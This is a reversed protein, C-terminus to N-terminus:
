HGGAGPMPHGKPDHYISEDPPGAVDIFGVAGKNIARSISHDVLLYRGPVDVTFEVWTAGGAPILTTQVNSLAESAGEPHVKDFVEGIVHFSSVLNPGGNGVILRIREGAQAHMTRDGTLAQFAGNFVVYDPREDYMKTGDFAHHGKDSSRGETYLEGQMVYFERDVPALGGEPEVLILGYMGLAIHTPIHPSACHYVYVGPNLAKFTFRETEGPKVQTSGAGGGPGNVAHLDISHVSKSSAHNKLRIEVTDGQRVRLMPGPVTGGFTWYTYTSGDALRGDLELVELDLTVKGPETRSIPGPLEAPHKRVDVAGARAPELAVRGALRDDLSTLSQDLEDVRADLGRGGALGWGALLLAVMAAGAIVGQMMRM